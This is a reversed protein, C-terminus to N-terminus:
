KGPQLHYLAQKLGEERSIEASIKDLVLKIEGSKFGLNMLASTLFQYNEESTTKQPGALGELKLKGKLALIISRAKKESLRPLRALKKFNETEVWGLFEEFSSLSSLINLAMKPGVGNVRILALFLKKELLSSFGYLKLSDERLATYIWFRHLAEVATKELTKSSAYVEYGVGEIDVILSEPSKEMVFGKLFAIM